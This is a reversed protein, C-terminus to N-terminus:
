RRSDRVLGGVLEERQRELLYNFEQVKNDLASCRKRLEAITEDKAQLTRKVKAELEGIIQEERRKSDAQLDALKGQEEKVRALALGLDERLDELEKEKMEDLSRLEQQHKAAAKDAVAHWQGREAELESCRRQLDGMRATDSAQLDKLSRVLEEQQKKQAMIMAVEGKTQEMEKALRAAEEGAAARAEQLREKTEKEQALKQEAHERSLREMLVELQRDRETSLQQRLAAERQEQEEKSRTDAVQQAARAEARLREELQQLQVGFNAKAEALLREAEQVQQQGRQREAALAERLKQESGESGQRLLEERLRRESTLDQACKQREEQLERSFREFDERLKRRHTERERDLAEEMERNKQDRLERLQQQSLDMLERRQEELAERQREEMRVKDQKRESLIREVEPQLGKITMEKIEKVKEKEWSERKMRETAIWNQKNKALEKAGHDEMEEIKMQFKREVAKLEEAFLECRKTLETKDNLLRDVLRLHREVGAEYHAKQKQLKDEWEKVTEQVLQKEHEQSEKLARKLSDIIQKKDHVEVELMSARSHAASADQTLGSPIHPRDALDVDDDWNGATRSSRASSVLSSMDAKSSEEVEELFNLISALREQPQATSKAPALARTAPVEPQDASQTRLEKIVKIRSRMQAVKEAAGTSNPSRQAEPDAPQAPTSSSDKEVYVGPCYAQRRPAPSLQVFFHSKNPLEQGAGGAECTEQGSAEPTVQGKGPAVKLGPCTLEPQEPAPVEEEPGRCSGMKRLAWDVSTKRLVCDVPEHLREPVNQGRAKPKPRRSASAEGRAQTIQPAM